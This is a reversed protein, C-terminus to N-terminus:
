CRYTQLARSVISSHRWECGNAAMRKMVWYEGPAKEEIPPRIGLRTAEMCPISYYVAQDFLM